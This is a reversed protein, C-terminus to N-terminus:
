LGSRGICLFQQAFYISHIKKIKLWEIKLLELM